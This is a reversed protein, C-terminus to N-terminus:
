YDKLLKLLIKDNYLIKEPYCNLMRGNDIEYFTWNDCETDYEYPHTNDFEWDFGNTITEEPFAHGRVLTVTKNEQNYEVEAYLANPYLYIVNPHQTIADFETKTVYENHLLIVKDYQQLLEPNQDVSLDSIIEYGLLGLIQVADGSSQFNLAYEGQIQQILCSEDCEGRYYTYFGPEFYAVATFIPYIVVAKQKEYLLGIDRYLSDQSPDLKYMVNEWNKTGNFLEYANEFAYVEFLSPVDLKILIKETTDLENSNLDVQIIGKQILYQLGQVFTQDDIQGDAWWGANNKVWTPIQNTGYNTDQIPQPVKLIDEIILQQIGQIFTYDDLQEDAWWGAITKIWSHIVIEEASVDISLGILGIAFILTIIL